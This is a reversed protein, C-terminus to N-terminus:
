TTISGSSLTASWALTYTDSDRSYEFDTLLDLEEPKLWAEGEHSWSSIADKLIGLNDPYRGEKQYYEQLGVQIGTCASSMDSFARLAVMTDRVRVVVMTGVCVGVLVTLPVIILTWRTTKGM